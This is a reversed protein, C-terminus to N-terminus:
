KNTFSLAVKLITCQIEQKLYQNSMQEGNRPGSIGDPQPFFDPTHLRLPCVTSERPETVM